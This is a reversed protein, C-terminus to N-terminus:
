RPHAIMRVGDRPHLTIGDKLAISLGPTLRLRYRRAIMALILPAEMLALSSGICLRPGGGFPWYAFRPRQEAREPRFREPDFREADEWYRPDRHTIYPTAVLTARPAIRYGGIHDAAAPSRIVLWAPPYLRLAEDVIMRTYTLAGIAQATPPQDGLTRDSEQHLQDEVNPHLAILPWAWSLTTATTEHGGLFITVVEDRLQKDSMGEGTEEDRAALLMGLLDDKERGDRRREEIIRYVFADIARIARAYARNSPTPWHEPLDIVSALRRSLHDFALAITRSLQGAEGEDIDTSFMARLIIRMTLQMMEAVVDIPTGRAAAPQWRQNLAATEEAMMTIMADIRQRHFAPQILRRQRLWSEGENRILGNGLLSRAKNLVRTQRDDYNRHNDQLVHKIHDPHNLLYTNPGLYVIDGYRAADTLCALPSRMFRPLVGLFPYGRPGPPHAHPVVPNPLAHHPVSM